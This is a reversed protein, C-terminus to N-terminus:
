GAMVRDTRPRGTRRDANSEEDRDDHGKKIPEGATPVPDFGYGGWPHCRGIRRLALWGGRRVGHVRLAEVAYSSCTPTYRCSGPFWPSIALQYFRVM